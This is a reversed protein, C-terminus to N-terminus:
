NSEWTCYSFYDLQGRLDRREDSIKSTRVIGPVCFL